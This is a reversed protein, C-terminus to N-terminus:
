KLDKKKEEFEKKNIDGKAYREKLIDLATKNNESETKNQGTIWKVLAVIGAIILVWWLIMFVWGFGAFPAFGFNMMSMPNTLNNNLASSNSWDGMMGGGMMMNQPMAANPECDSMRKGMAVHMEEEGEEGLMAIMMNNMAEHSDGTMQGMFYEGLAGFNEDSLDECKLEGAQLKGRVEKGEAEERATHGDDNQTSTNNFDMMGEAFSLLPVSLSFAFILIALTLIKKM